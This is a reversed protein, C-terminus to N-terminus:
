DAERGKTEGALFLLEWRIMGIACLGEGTTDWHRTGRPCKTLM